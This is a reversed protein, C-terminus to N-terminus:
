GRVFLKKVCLKEDVVEALGVFAGGETFIRRIGTEGAPLFRGSDMKVGNQFARVDRDGLVLKEYCVFATEVPLIREGLRGADALAQAAGITIADKVKYGSSVTRRLSTLVAGCGLDQGLDHCLTRIYTGKSCEIYLCYRHEGEDCGTLDLRHIVAERAAREVTKGERAYQYLRKGGVMVASYMPPTQSITGTYSELARRVEKEGATVEHEELINGTIDQTDSVKGLVFEAEYAKTHDPLLDCAKTASGFFLPLIGTAMPDLTGGHGIKRTKAIGRMKAVVDFSTFDAPKDILLIGDLSKPKNETQLSENQMTM